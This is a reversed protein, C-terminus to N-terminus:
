DMELYKWLDCTVCLLPCYIAIFPILSQELYSTESDAANWGDVIMLNQNTLKTSDNVNVYTRTKGGKKKGKQSIRSM